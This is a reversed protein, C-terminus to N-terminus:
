TRREVCGGAALAKSQPVRSRQFAIADNIEAAIHELRSVVDDSLFRLVVIGLKQMELDKKRDRRYAEPDQFHHYGDLEVAISYRASFLDIEMPRGGFAIDMTANLCFLGATQARSQLQAFLFREAWSRAGDDISDEPSAATGPVGPDSEVIAEAIGERLIAKAHSEPTSRLYDDLVAAEVWLATPLWPAAEAVEVLQPVIERALEDPRKDAATHATVWIAPLDEGCVPPFASYAQAPPDCPGRLLEAIRMPLDTSPTDGQQLHDLALRLWRLSRPLSLNECYIDLSRQTGSQIRLLIANEAENTRQSLYRVARMPLNCHYVLATLWSEFLPQDSETSWAVQPRSEIDSWERYAAAGDGTLVSITPVGRARRHAHALLTPQVSPAAITASALDSLALDM